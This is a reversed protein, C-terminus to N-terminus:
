KFSTKNKEIFYCSDLTTTSVEQKEQQEEEKKKTLLEKKLFWCQQQTVHVALMIIPKRKNKNKHRVEKAEQRM